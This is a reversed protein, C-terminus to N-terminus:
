GKLGSRRGRCNEVECFEWDECAGNNITLCDTFILYVVTNPSACPSSSVCRGTPRSEPATVTKVIGEVLEKDIM